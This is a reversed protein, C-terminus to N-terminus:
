LVVQTASICPQPSPTPPGPGALGRRRTELLCRGRAQRRRDEIDNGRRRRPNISAYGEHTKEKLRSRHSEMGANLQGRARFHPLLHTPLIAIIHSHCHHHRRWPRISHDFTWPFCREPSQKSLWCFEAVCCSMGAWRSLPRHKKGAFDLKAWIGHQLSPCIDGARILKRSRQHM